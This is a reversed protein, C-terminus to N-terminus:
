NRRIPYRTTYIVSEARTMNGRPLYYRWVMASAVFRNVGRSRLEWRRRVQYRNKQKLREFGPPYPYRHILWLFTKGRYAWKVRYWFSM